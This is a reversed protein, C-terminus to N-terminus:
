FIKYYSLKKYSVIFCDTSLFLVPGSLIFGESLLYCIMGIVDFFPCEFMYFSILFNIKCSSRVYIIKNTDLCERGEDVPQFVKDSTVGFFTSM